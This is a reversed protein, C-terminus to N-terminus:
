ALGLVRNALAALVERRAPRPWGMLADLLGDLVAQDDNAVAAVLRGCMLAEPPAQATTLPAFVTSLQDTARVQEAVAVAVLAVM